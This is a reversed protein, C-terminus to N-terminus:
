DVFFRLFICLNHSEILFGVQAISIYNNIQNPVMNLICTYLFPAYLCENFVFVPVTLGGLVLWTVIVIANAKRITM